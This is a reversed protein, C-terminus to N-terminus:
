SLEEQKTSEDRLAEDSMYAIIDEIDEVNFPKDM